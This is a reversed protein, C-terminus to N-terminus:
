ANAKSGINLMHVIEELSKMGTGTNIAVVLSDPNTIRLKPLAAYVAASTPEPIISETRIINGMAQTIEQDTVEVVYGKSERLARMAKPSSYSEQAVIGEAISDEIDGLIEFDTGKALAKSFPAAGEVQVSVMQPLRRTLGLSQLDKFGKWIGALNTGNGSPTVVVDPVGLQEWLEYAITKDAETRIGTQGATVNWGDPKSDVVSRYVDEYFGPVPVLSAEFLRILNQKEASTKEPIYAVCEIGAKQAFAATSLAGNGSSIIIVKRIDSELASAIVVASGRDKASGTPNLEEHKVWLNSLGLQRGFNDVKTVPTDGVGRSLVAPIERVPLLPLFREMGKAGQSPFEKIGGYSFAFDEYEYYKADPISPPAKLVRYKAIETM